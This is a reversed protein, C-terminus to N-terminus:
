ATVPMWWLRSLTSTGQGTSISRVATSRRRPVRSQRARGGPRGGRRRRRRRRRRGTETGPRPRPRRPGPQPGAAGTGARPRM